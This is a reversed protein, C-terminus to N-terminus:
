YPGRINGPQRDVRGGRRGHGSDIFAACGRRVIRLQWKPFSDSRRLWRQDLMMKWCCYFGAILDPADRIGSTVAQRFEPTAIEDADLFLIWQTKLDCNELAWNRQRAFSEFPHDYVRAGAQRAIEQTGDDSGSDVVVAEGFGAISELCGPLNDAENQTLVIIALSELMSPIMRHSVFFLFSRRCRGDSVFYSLSRRLARVFHSLTERGNENRLGEAAM